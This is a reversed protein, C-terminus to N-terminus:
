FTFVKVFHVLMSTPVKYVGCIRDQQEDSLDDDWLALDGSILAHGYPHDLIPGALVEGPCLCEEVLRWLIGGKMLAARANRESKCFALKATEYEAYDVLDSKYDFPRYGLGVVKSPPIVAPDPLPGPIRTTFPIGFRLFQRIIDEFDPGWRERLCQLASTAQPVALQFHNLNNTNLLEIPEIFYFTQENNFKRPTIKIVAGSINGLHDPSATSIDWLSGPAHGICVFAMVFDTIPARIGNPVDTQAELYALKKCISLWDPENDPMGEFELKKYSDGSAETVFGFRSYVWTSLNVKQIRSGDAQSVESDNQTGYVDVLDGHYSPPQPSAPPYAPPGEPTQSREEFIDGDMDDFDEEARDDPDFETCIDWENEFANFRKKRNGYVGWWTEVEGRNVRMRIRFGDVDEWRFVTAGRRGPLPFNRQAYERSERATRETTSERETQRVQRQAQRTFFDQWTEGPLQRSYPEPKPPQTHTAVNSPSNATPPSLPMPLAPQLQSTAWQAEALASAIESAKPFFKVRGEYKYGAHNVMAPYPGGVNGWYLWLPVKAGALAPLCEHWEFTHMNVVMGIRENNNSFNGAMSRQLSDIWVHHIPERKLCETWYPTESLVDAESRRYGVLAMFWSCEALLVVFAARSNMACTIARRRQRHLQMYGYSSPVRFALPGTRYESQLIRAVDLLACELRHWRAQLTVPLHWGGESHELPLSHNTFALRQFLNGDFRLTKPVLGLYPYRSSAWSLQFTQEPWNSGTREEQVATLPPM